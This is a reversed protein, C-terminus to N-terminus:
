PRTQGEARLSFCYPCAFLGNAACEEETPAVRMDDSKCTCEARHYTGRAFDMYLNPAATVNSKAFTYRNYRISGDGYPYGQFLAMMGVGPLSKVTDSDVAPMAFTYSIGEEQAILNQMNCYYTLQEELKEAVVMSRVLEFAEADLLLSGAAKSSLTAEMDTGALKSVDLEYTLRESSIIGRYDLVRVQTKTGEAGSYFGYIFYGDDYPYFQKESQREVLATNGNSDKLLENYFVTFGDKETVVIVPTYLQILQRSEPMDSVGFSSYMSSFFADVAAEKDPELGRSVDDALSTTGMLVALEVVKDTEDKLSQQADAADTRLGCAIMLIVAFVAFILTYHYLKM